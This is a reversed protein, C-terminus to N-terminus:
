KWLENSIAMIGWRMNTQAKRSAVIQKGLISASDIQGPRKGEEYHGV